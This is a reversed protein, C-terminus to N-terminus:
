GPTPNSPKKYDYGLALVLGNQIQWADLVLPTKRAILLYELSFWSALKVRVKASIDSNLAQSGPTPNAANTYFPYFFHAGCKWTTSETLTGEMDIEAVAGAQISRQIQKLELADTSNDDAVVYGNQSVLEQAGLGAKSSVTFWTSTWPKAFAGVSQSLMLPEFPKTLAINKGAAVQQPERVTGDKQVRVVSTDKARVDVGELIQTNLRLQVFPGLWPVKKFQYAYFTTWTLVDTSKIFKNFQPTRTQSHQIKMDNQWRHGQSLFLSQGEVLVGIQMTSGDLAGVVRDNHTYSVTSVAHLNYDWGQQEKKAYVAEEKVGDLSKIEESAWLTNCFLVSLFVISKDCM